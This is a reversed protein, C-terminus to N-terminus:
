ESSVFKAYTISSKKIPNSETCAINAILRTNRTTILKQTQLISGFLSSLNKREKFKTEM